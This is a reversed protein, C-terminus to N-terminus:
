TNNINKHHSRPLLNIKNTTYRFYCELHDTNFPLKTGNKSNGWSPHIETWTPLNLLDSSWVSLASQFSQTIGIWHYGTHWSSRRPNHLHKPLPWSFGRTHSDVPEPCLFTPCSLSGPLSVSAAYPYLKWSPRVILLFVQALSVGLNHLCLEWVFRPTFLSRSFHVFLFKPSPFIFLYHWPDQNLFYKLMFYFCLYTTNM